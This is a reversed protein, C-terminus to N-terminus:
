NELTTGQHYIMKWSNDTQKWISCRHSESFDNNNPNIDRTRYTALAVSSSLQKVKFDNLSWSDEKEKQMLWEIVDKKKVVEGSGGIEEFDDSILEDFLHAASSADLSQLKEELAKIQVELESM